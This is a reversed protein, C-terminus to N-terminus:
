ELYVLLPSYINYYKNERVIKTMSPSRNELTVNQKASTHKTFSHTFFKRM